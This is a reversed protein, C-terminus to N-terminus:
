DIVRLIEGLREPPLVTPTGGGIFVSSVPVDAAGLVHRALRIEAAAQGPYSDRSAGGGLEAATYTNFDCYGCRSVCFPIHVYVGFPRSGFGDLAGAPLEGSAPAPDGEPLTSPM